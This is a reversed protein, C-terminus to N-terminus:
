FIPWYYLSHEVFVVSACKRLMPWCQALACMGISLGNLARVGVPAIVTTLLSSNCSILLLEVHTCNRARLGLLFRNVVRRSQCSVAYIALSNLSRSSSTSCTNSGCWLIHSPFSQWIEPKSCRMSRTDSASSCRDNGYREPM